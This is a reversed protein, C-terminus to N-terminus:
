ASPYTGNQTPSGYAVPLLLDKNTFLNKTMGLPFTQNGNRSLVLPSVDYRYAEFSTGKSFWSYRPEGNGPNVWFINTGTGRAAYQVTADIDGPEETGSEMADFYIATQALASGNTQSWYLWSYGENAGGAIINM